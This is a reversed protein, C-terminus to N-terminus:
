ETEDTSTFDGILEDAETPPTPSDDFTPQDSTLIGQSTTDRNNLAWMLALEYLKAATQESVTPIDNRFRKGTAVGVLAVSQQFLEQISIRRPAPQSANAAEYRARNAAIAAKIKQAIEEDTLKDTLTGDPESEIAPEEIDVPTTSKNAM